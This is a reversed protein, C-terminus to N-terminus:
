LCVLAGLADVACVKGPMTTAPNTTTTTTTTTPNAATSYSGNGIVGSAGISTTTSATSTTSAASNHSDTSTTTTTTVNAQPTVTVPAQIKGAIGVFANNTSEAVRTANESQSMGLRTSQSISYLQTVSPMLVQAWQLASSSQPAQIQPQSATAGGAGGFALAMTAAIRSADSGDKAIAALAEFRAKEANSKAVHM